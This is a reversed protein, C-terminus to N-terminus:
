VIFLTNKIFKDNVNLLTIFTFKAESKNKM